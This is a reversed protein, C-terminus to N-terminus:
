MKSIKAKIMIRFGFCKHQQLKWYGMGKKLTLIQQITEGNNKDIIKCAMLLNSSFIDIQLDFYADVYLLDAGWIIGKNTKIFTDINEAYSIDFQALGVPFRGFEHEKIHDFRLYLVNDFTGIYARMPRDELAFEYVGDFLSSNIPPLEMFIYILLYSLHCCCTHLSAVTRLPISYIILPFILYKLIMIM